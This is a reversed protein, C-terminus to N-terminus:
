QTLGLPHNKIEDVGHTGILTLIIVNEGILFPATLEYVIICPVTCGHPRIANCVYIYM